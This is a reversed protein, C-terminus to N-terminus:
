RDKEEKREKSKKILKKKLAARREKLEKNTKAAKLKIAKLKVKRIKEDKIKMVDGYEKKLKVHNKRIEIEMKKSENAYAIKLERRNQQAKLAKNVFAFKSLEDAKYKKDDLYFETVQNEPNKIVIAQQYKGQSHTSVNLTYAKFTAKNINQSIGQAWSLHVGPLVFVSLIGVLTIIGALALPSNLLNNKSNKMDQNKLLKQVRNTLSKKGSAMAAVWQPPQTFWGAVEVLCQALAQNNQTLQVAEADCIQETVEHIERFLWKNLPQFFFLAQLVHCTTLWLDDRRKLHALEHALMSEQQVGTLSHLAKVPVVITHKNLVIPSITNTVFRLRVERKLRAKAKLKNLLFLLQDDEHAVYNLSRLFQKKRWLFRITLFVVTALWGMFFVQYWDFAHTPLTPAPAPNLNSKYTTHVNAPTTQALVTEPITAPTEIEVQWWVWQGYLQISTTCLSAVLATKLLVDKTVNTLQQRNKLMMALAVIIITSHLAYTFLWGITKLAIEPTNLDIM